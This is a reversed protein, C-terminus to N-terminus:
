SAGLILAPRLREMCSRGEVPVNSPDSAAAQQQKSWELLALIKLKEV